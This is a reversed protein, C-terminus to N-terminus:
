DTSIGKAYADLYESLSSYVRVADELYMQMYEPIDAWDAGDELWKKIKEAEATTYTWYGSLTNISTAFVTYKEEGLQKLEERTDRIQDLQAQLNDRNATKERIEGQVVSISIVIGAIAAATAGFFILGAIIVLPAAPGAVIAGVGLVPLGVALGVGLGILAKYLEGLRTNLEALEENIKKIEVTLEGEKDKAWDAFTAVFGAFNDVLAQFDSKVNEAQSQYDTAKEIFQNIRELRQEVTYNTDACFKVIIADFSAGYQSIDAALLRSSKLVGRYKDRHQILTPAFNSQNVHDIEAIKLQLSTFVDEIDRAAKNATNAEEKLKAKAEDTSLAKAAGITYKKKDAETKIPNHEEAGAQLVAREEDTLSTAADLYKDPTPNSGVLSDVKKAVEDYSPPSDSFLYPPPPPFTTM